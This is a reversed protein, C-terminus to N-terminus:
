TGTCAYEDMDRDWRGNFLCTAVLTSRSVGGAGWEAAAAVAGTPAHVVSKGPLLCAYRVEAGEATSGNLPNWDYEQM